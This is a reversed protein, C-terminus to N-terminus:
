WSRTIGEVWADVVSWGTFLWVILWIPFTALLVVGGPFWLLGSGVTRVVIGLRRWVKGRFHIVSRSQYLIIVCFVFLLVWLTIM